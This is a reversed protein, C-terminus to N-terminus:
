FLSELRARAREEHRQRSADEALGRIVTETSFIVQAEPKDEFIRVGLGGEYGWSFGSADPKVRYKAKIRGLVSGSSQDLNLAVFLVKKGKDLAVLAEGPLCSGGGAAEVLRGADATFGKDKVKQFACGMSSLIQNMEGESTVGPVIRGVPQYAREQRRAEDGSSLISEYAARAGQYWLRVCAEDRCRERKKWLDEALGKFASSNGTRRRAERYIRGLDEDARSLDPTSCILKEAYSRAKTCDFSAASAALPLLVSLLALLGSYSKLLMMSFVKLCNIAAGSSAGGENESGSILFGKIRPM